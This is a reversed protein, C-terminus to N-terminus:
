RTAPSGSRRNEWDLGLAALERRLEVLDWLDLTGDDCLVALTRGDPSLCPRAAQGNNGLAPLVVLQRGTKPDILHVRADVGAALLKGDNSLWPVVGSTHTVVEPLGTQEAWNETAYLKFGLQGGCAFFRGDGSFSLLGLPGVPFERVIKWDNASRLKPHTAAPLNLGTTETVVWRRDPSFRADLLEPQDEVRKVTVGTTADIIKLTGPSRQTLALWRGDASMDSLLFGSEADLAVPEGTLCTGDPQPELPVRVLGSNRQCFFLGHGDSTFRVTPENGRHALGSQGPLWAAIMRRPVNVITAGNFTTFALWQSDASFVLAGVLVAPGPSGASSLRSVSNPLDVRAAVGHSWEQSFIMERGDASLTLDPSPTTDVRVFQEEGTAADWARMTSDAGRSWLQHGDNSFQIAQSTYTHGRLEHRLSGDDTGLLCITGSQLGIALERGDPRWALAGTIAPLNTTWRVRLTNADLVQVFASSNCSLALCRGDPSYRVQDFQNTSTSRILAEGDALRHVALGGGGLGVAVSKADPPFDVPQRWAEDFSINGGAVSVLKTPPVLSWVQVAGNTSSFAVLSGDRNFRPVSLLKGIGTTDLQALVRDSGRERWELLGPTTEAVYSRLSPHFKWVSGEVKRAEWQKVTTVDMRALAAVAVDRLEPSPNIGAAEKIAALAGLRQGPQRTNLVARAQAFRAEWLSRLAKRNAALAVDRAQAIWIAAVTSGTALLVMLVWVTALAPRRRCWRTLRGVPSVPRAQVPEGRLFRELDTALAGATQYRRSPEKELCKLCINELDAPVSANLQRPAVPENAKVQEIIAQPSEAFFPPRGALMEYLIAGLAYVDSAASLDRNRGAAQEPPMYAPSGIVTGTMTGSSEADLHRALGFDTIRPEDRGDILVNSPKLDRHLIAQSHAHEVGHAIKALYRASRLAPLPGDRVVDALTRGPVYEMSYFPQGDLEGSEHVSVINPHQLRAAAAAESMFRRRADVGAFAGGLLVKLAVVRGLSRQRALYVVGMGGRAIEDLLEYEGFQKVTDGGAGM